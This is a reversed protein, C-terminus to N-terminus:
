IVPNFSDGKSLMVFNSNVATEKADLEAKWWQAIQKEGSRNSDDLFVAYQDALRPLLYPVAPYRSLSISKRFAMPGDVLVMDFHSVSSTQANIADEDYWKLGNKAHKCETLPAYVFTVRDELGEDALREKM